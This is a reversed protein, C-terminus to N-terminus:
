LFTPRDRENLVLGSQYMQAVNTRSNGPLHRMFTDPIM